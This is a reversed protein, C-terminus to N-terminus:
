LDIDSDWGTAINEGPLARPHGPRQWQLHCVAATDAAACSADADTPRGSASLGFVTSSHLLGTQLRM